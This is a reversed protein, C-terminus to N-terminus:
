PATYGLLDATTTGDPPVTFSEDYEYTVTDDYHWWENIYQQLGCALLTRDLLSANYAAMESVDSFERDGAATFDDFGSPMSVERGALTVLTVDLSGGLNHSRYGHEPNAIYKGDPMAEWLAWQAEMPRYADWIKLSMGYERLMAQAAVLKKVTGCRLWADTFTYIPRGTINDATAYRLDIYVGPVYDAVRVYQTDPLSDLPPPTGEDEKQQQTPVTTPRTTQTTPPVSTPVVVVVSSTGAPQASPRFLSLATWGVVVLLAIILPGALLYMWPRVAKTKRKM